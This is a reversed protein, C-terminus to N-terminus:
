PLSDRYKVHVVGEGMLIAGKCPADPGDDFVHNRPDVWTWFGFPIKILEAM